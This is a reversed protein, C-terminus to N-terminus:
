IATDDQEVEGIKAAPFWQHIKKVARQAAAYAAGGELGVGSYCKLHFDIQDIQRQRGGTERSEWMVELGEEQFIRAFTSARSEPIDVRVRTM